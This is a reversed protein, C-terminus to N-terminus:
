QSGDHLGGQTTSMNAPLNRRGSTHYSSRDFLFLFFLQEPLTRGPVFLSPNRSNRWNFSAVYECDTIRASSIHKESEFVVDDKKITSLLRGLPPDPPPTYTSKRSWSGGTSGSREKWFHSKYAM